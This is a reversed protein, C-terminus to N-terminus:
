DVDQPSDVADIGAVNTIKKQKRSIEIEAKATFMPAMLITAVVGVILSAGIIGLLVARWRLMTHWYQLLVPPLLRDSEEEYVYDQDILHPDGAEIAHKTTDSDAM